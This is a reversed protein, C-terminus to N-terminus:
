TITNKLFDGFSHIVSHFSKEPFLAPIWKDCSSVPLNRTDQWFFCLDITSQLYLQSYTFSYTSILSLPCSFWKGYFALSEEVVDRVSAWGDAEQKFLGAQEQCKSRQGPHGEDDCAGLAKECPMTRVAWWVFMLCSGLMGGVVGPECWCCQSANLLM